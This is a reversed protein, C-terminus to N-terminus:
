VPQALLGFHYKQKYVSVGDKVLYSQAFMLKFSSRNHLQYRPAISIIHTGRYKGRGARVEIGIIFVTDSKSDRMTVHLKRYQTGKRM